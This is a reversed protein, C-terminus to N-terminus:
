MKQSLLLVYNYLFDLAAICVVGNFRISMPVYYTGLMCIWCIMAHSRELFQTHFIIVHAFNKGYMTGYMLM